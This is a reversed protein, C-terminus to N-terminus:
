STLGPVTGNDLGDDTFQALTTRASTADPLASAGMGLVRDMHSRPVSGQSMADSTQWPMVRDCVGTVSEAIMAQGAMLGTTYSNILALENYFSAVLAHAKARVIGGIGFPIYYLESDLNIWFQSNQATAAPDDLQHVPIRANVASHYLARLLNRGNILARQMQWNSQSKNRLFFNRGSGIAQMPLVQVATSITFAQFMGIPLMSGPGSPGPRAVDRRAPGAMILSDDPNAAEYTANDLPREVHNGQFSWNGMTRTTGIPYGATTM